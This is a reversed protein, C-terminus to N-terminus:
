EIVGGKRNVEILYMGEAMRLIEEESFQTCAKRFPPYRVPEENEIIEKSM